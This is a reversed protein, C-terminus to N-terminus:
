DLAPRGRLRRFRGDNAGGSDVSRRMGREGRRNGGRSGKGRGGSNGRNGGTHGSSRREGDPRRQGRGSTREGANDADDADDGAHDGGPRHEEMFTIANGSKSGRGTRGIRHVYDEFAEPLDFNVVHTVDPIDLGRAAVDTATLVQVKEERFRKLARERASQTKDGHIADAGFGRKGLERALAEAGRKTRCFVLVKGFEPKNLLDHLTEVKQRRDAVMIVEQEVNEATPRSKIEVRVPNRLFSTALEAIERPMTASFFLSQRDSRVLGVIFRIDRVFGMDLMRDVEDLVINNVSTLSLVRREILDKIRGPTGIIFDPKRRIAGIQRAMNAGGIICAAALGTRAAFDVFEKEIQLALERTPALILTRQGETRLTKDILPILFAATKGTGTNALGIVDRGELVHPIAGDQIPTPHTFGRAALNRKIADHIPLEAYLHQPVFAEEVTTQVAKRTFMAPDFKPGTPKKRSGRGYRGPAGGQRNKSVKKWTGTPAPIKKQPM